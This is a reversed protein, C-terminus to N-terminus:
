VLCGFVVKDIAVAINQSSPKTFLLRAAATGFPAPETIGTYVFWNPRGGTVLCTLSMGLGIQMGNKDLWLVQILMQPTESGGGNSIFGLGCNFLFCRGVANVLPIDQFLSGGTDAALADVNGEYINNGAFLSVNDHIWNDLGEIFSPNKVLNNTATRAFIVQDITLTTGETVFVSFFIRAKFAGLPAPGTIDLYSLYNEQAALTQAPIELYLGTGGTPTPNDLADLWRVEVSLSAEGNASAAFSLLFTSNKPFHGILVDQYMTDARTVQAKGGGAFPLAYSSDFSATTWQNLGAEFGPNQLLNISSVPTLIVQDILIMDSSSGKAKSFQLRAWAANAPPRDTIDFYTLDIGTIRGNKIFLSLGTGIINRSADLWLVEALLDGNFQNSTPSVANFSLLLPMCNLKSLSIDQYMNAEGPGLRAAQTGEFPIGENTTVNHTEWQSLDTEFSPNQVLNNCRGCAKSPTLGCWQRCPYAKCYSCFYPHCRQRIM